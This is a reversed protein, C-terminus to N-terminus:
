SYDVEVKPPRCEYCYKKRGKPLVSGCPCKPADEKVLRKRYGCPCALISEGGKEVILANQAVRKYLKGSRSVHAPVRNSCVPCEATTTVVNFGLEEVIRLLNYKRMSKM